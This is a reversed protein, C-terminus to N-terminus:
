TTIGLKARLEDKTPKAATIKWDQVLDGAPTEFVVDVYGLMPLDIGPLDVRIEEEIAVIEGRPEFAERWHLYLRRLREAVADRDVKGYTIVGSAEEAFYVAELLDLAEDEDFSAGEKRHRLDEAIVDHLVTGEVLAVPRTEPPVGTRRFYWALSCSLFQRVSSVSWSRM